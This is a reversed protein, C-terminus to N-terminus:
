FDKVGLYIIKEKNLNDINERFCMKVIVIFNKNNYLGFIFDFLM